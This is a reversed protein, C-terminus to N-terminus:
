KALQQWNALEDPHASRWTQATREWLEAADAPFRDTAELAAPILKRKASGTREIADAVLMVADYGLAAFAFPTEAALALKPQQLLLTIVARM